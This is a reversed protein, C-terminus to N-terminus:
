KAGAGSVGIVGCAIRPGAGGAPQSVLDDKNEHVILGRGVIPSLQTNISMGEVVFEFKAVGNKDAVVNGLDGAHRVEAKLGGHGQGGPNYHGGASAGDPATCDGFEHIHFGHELGKSLGKLEGSVKVKGFNESFRVIGSATQGKTPRVEAVAYYAPAGQHAGHDSTSACGTLGIALLGILGIQEMGIQKVFDKV